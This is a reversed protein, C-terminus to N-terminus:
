AVMKPHRPERAYRPINPFPFGKDSGTEPARSEPMAITARVDCAPTAGGEKADRFSETHCGKHNHFNVSGGVGGM